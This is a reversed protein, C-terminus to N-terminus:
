DGGGGGGGEERGRGRDTVTEDELMRKVRDIRELRGELMVLREKKEKDRRELIKIKEELKARAKRETAVMTNAEEFLKATLEEIEDNTQEARTEAAHRLSQERTLANLLESERPAVLGATAPYTYQSPNPTQALPPYLPASSPPNIPRRTPLLRSLRTSATVPPPQQQTPTVTSAANPTPTPTSIASSLLHPPYPSNTAFTISRLAEEFDTAKEVLNISRNAPARYPNLFPVLFPYGSFHRASDLDQGPTRPRFYQNPRKLRHHSNHLPGDNRVPFLHPFQRPQFSTRPPNPHTNSERYADTTNQQPLLLAKTFLQDKALLTYQQPQHQNRPM